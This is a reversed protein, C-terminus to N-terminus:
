KLDEWPVREITVNEAYLNIAEIGEVNVIEAIDADSLDIGFNEKHEQLVGIMDDYDYNGNPLVKNWYGIARQLNDKAMIAYM